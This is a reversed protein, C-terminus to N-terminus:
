EDALGINGCCSNPDERWEPYRALWEKKAQEFAPGVLEGAKNADYIARYAVQAKARRDM